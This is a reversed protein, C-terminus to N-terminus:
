SCDQAYAQELKWRLLEVTLPDVGDAQILESGMFGNTLGTM